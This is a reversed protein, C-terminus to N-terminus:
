PCTRINFIVDQQVIQVQAAIQRRLALVVSRLLDCIREDDERACTGDKRTQGDVLRCLEM